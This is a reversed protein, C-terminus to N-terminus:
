SVEVLKSLTQKFVKMFQFLNRSSYLFHLLTMDSEASVKSETVQRIANTLCCWVLGEM